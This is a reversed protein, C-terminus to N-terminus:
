SFNFVLMIRSSEDGEDVTSFSDVMGWTFFGADRLHIGESSLIIEPKRKILENLSYGFAVVFIIGLILIFISPDEYYIKLSIIALAGMFFSYGVLKRKSQEIIREAEPM